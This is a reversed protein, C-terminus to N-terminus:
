NLCLLIKVIASYDSIVPIFTKILTSAHSKHIHGLIGVM